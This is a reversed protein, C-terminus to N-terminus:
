TRGEKGIRLRLTMLMISLEMKLENVMSSSDRSTPKIKSCSYGLVTGREM